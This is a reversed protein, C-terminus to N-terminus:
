TSAEERALSQLSEVLARENELAAANADRAEVISKVTTALDDNNTCGAAERAERLTKAFWQKTHAYDADRAALERRLDDAEQRRYKERGEAQRARRRWRKWKKM